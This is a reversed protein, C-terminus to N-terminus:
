KEHLVDFQGPLFLLQAMPPHPLGVGGGWSGELQGIHGYMM